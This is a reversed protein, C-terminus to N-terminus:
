NKGPDAMMRRYGRKRECAVARRLEKEYILFLGRVFDKDAIVSPWHYYLWQTIAEMGEESLHQKSLM